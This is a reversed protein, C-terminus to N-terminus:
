FLYVVHYGLSKVSVFWQVPDIHGILYGTSRRLEDICMHRVLRTVLLMGGLMSKTHTAMCRGLIGAFPRIDTLATDSTLIDCCHLM